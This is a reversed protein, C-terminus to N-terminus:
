FYFAEGIQFPLFSRIQFVLLSACRSDVYEEVQCCTETKVSCFFTVVNDRTDIIVDFTNRSYIRMIAPDDILLM